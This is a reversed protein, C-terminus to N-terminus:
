TGREMTAAFQLCGLGLSLALPGSRQAASQPLRAATPRAACRRPAHGELAWRGARASCPPGAGAGVKWGKRQLFAEVRVAEKKYLVFIIIRNSRSKHHQQLLEHLRADRARDEIM